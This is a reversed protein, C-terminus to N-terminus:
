SSSLTEQNTSGLLASQAGGGSMGFSFISDKDGPIAGGNYRIYRIAAKFDAVGAPAGHDRGRAGSWIYVFGADTFSKVSSSYDTPAAMASYGPTNVPLVMPATLATYGNVIVETNISCTYTGDGNDEADFYGAPVFVGLTEYDADAPDACYSIGTQWYVNDDTNLQWKSNDILALM